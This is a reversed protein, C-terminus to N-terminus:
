PLYEKVTISSLAVGGLLRASSAGNVTITTAGSPGARVKFTTSSTTGATMSYKLSMQNGGTAITQAIFTADLASATSDQFLAAIITANGALSSVNLVVDIELTSSANSPTISVSLFETGETNQPITDDLPIITTGTAVAGSSSRQIQYLRKGVDTIGYGNVTTPTGTVKSWSVSAIKADTVNSNLIRTTTVWDNANITAIASTNTTVSTQLAPVTTYTITNVDNLWSTPVVTVQDVFVTSTM